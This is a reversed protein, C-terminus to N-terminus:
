PTHAGKPSPKAMPIVGLKLAKPDRPLTQGTDPALPKGPDGLLRLGLTVEGELDRRLTLKRRDRIIEGPRWRSTPFRGKATFAARSRQPSADGAAAVLELKFDDSPARKARFYVAVEISQGPIPSAPEVDFGLVEIRGGDFTAGGGRPDVPHQIEPLEDLLVDSLYMMLQNRQDDRAYYVRELWDELHRNMTAFAERAATTRPPYLNRQERPDRELDYLEYLDDQLKRILKFRDSIAARQPKPYDTEAFVVRDRADAGYFLQPILSEGEFRLRSRDVGALDLVTPFIDLPTVPGPVVRPPISPVYVILPVHLLEFYLAKAHSTFGHENFGDGHDSTIIIITNEAIGPIRSLERILRGVHKDTFHLEGDYLDKESSGYSVEGPHEVYHGHPDIYHAWLFWKRGANSGIWALARDTLRDASVVKPNNKRGLSNDYTDFGQDLGWENFYYHTLLAGTAYGASELAESLLLNEPKTLPPKGRRNPGLAIGSHFFKSTMIAPISAMTGASPAQAFSFSVSREVLKALEPTTDREYGGFSTHDYRVTDITLLLFNWDRRFSEPVPPIKGPELDLRALQLDRGDCNEDIGNDPIEPALPNKAKDFPDCDTEGLLSGFGDRDIDNAKRVGDVLLDLAPSATVALAKAGPHAGVWLLTAPALLLCFGAAIAAQTRWRPPRSWRAAIMRGIVVGAALALASLLARWPIVPAMRPSLLAVAVLVAAILGALALLAPLPRTLPNAPALRGLRPELWGGLAAVAARIGLGALVAAAIVALQVVGLLVGTLSLVKFRPVIVATAAASAAVYFLASGALGWFWATSRRPGRELPSLLGRFHAARSRDVLAAGLRVSASAGALALWVIPAALGALVIAVVCFRLATGISLDGPGLLGAILTAAIEVAAFGALAALSCTWASVLDTRLWARM